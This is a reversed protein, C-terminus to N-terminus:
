FFKLRTGKVTFYCQAFTIIDLLATSITMFGSVKWVAHITEQYPHWLWVMCGSMLLSGVSHM